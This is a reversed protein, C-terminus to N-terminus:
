GLGHVKIRRDGIALHCSRSDDIPVTTRLEVGNGELLTVHDLNSSAVVQKTAHVLPEISITVGDHDEESNRRGVVFLELVEQMGVQGRIVDSLVPDRMPSGTLTVLTDLPEIGSHWEM